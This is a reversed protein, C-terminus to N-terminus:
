GYSSADNWRWFLRSVLYSLIYANCSLSTSNATKIRKIQSELEPYVLCIPTVL